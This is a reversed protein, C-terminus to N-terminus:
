FKKIKPSYLEMEWFILTGNEQFIYFFKKQSFILFKKLASKKPNKQTKKKKLKQARKNKSGTPSGLPCVVDVWTSEIDINQRYTSPWTEVFKWRMEM